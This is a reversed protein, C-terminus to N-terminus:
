PILRPAVSVSVKSIIHCTNRAWKKSEGPSSESWSNYLQDSPKEDQVPPDAETTKVQRSLSQQLWINNMILFMKPSADIDAPTHRDGDKHVKTYRHSRYIDAHTKSSCIWCSRKEHNRTRNSCSIYHLTTKTVSICNSNKKNM